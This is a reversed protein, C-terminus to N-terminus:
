KLSNLYEYKFEAIKWDEIDDIDQSELESIPYGITKKTFVSKDQLLPTIKFWYFQGVDHYAPRLDQSRSKLFEPHILKLCLDQELNMARQPSARYKCVPVLYDQGSEILTNFSDILKNSTIFPATPYLCCGYDFSLGKENLNQIVELLVDITTATDNSNEASRIFPVLAGSGKSIEAIKESDTSVIVQDFLKSEIAARISYEIIPRGSFSKINKDPIRKSGGRATIIAVKHTM